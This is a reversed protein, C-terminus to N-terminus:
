SLPDDAPSRHALHEAPIRGPRGAQFDEFAQVIEERTNMVFPGYRAVPEGIPVGGLVLIEWGTPSNSPQTDAARVSLADGPGFVAFQGEELSRGSGATGRGSLVYVLANYDAPWPM